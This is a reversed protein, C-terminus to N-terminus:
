LEKFHLQNRRPAKYVTFSTEGEPFGFFDQIVLTEFDDTVELRLCKRCFILHYDDCIVSFIGNEVFFKM